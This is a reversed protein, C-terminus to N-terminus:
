VARLMVYALTTVIGNPLRGCQFINIFVSKMSM